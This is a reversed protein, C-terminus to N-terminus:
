EREEFCSFLVSRVIAAEWSCPEGMEASVEFKALVTMQHQAVFQRSLDPDCQPATLLERITAFADSALEYESQHAFIDFFPWVLDPLRLIQIALREFQMWDRLIAGCVLATSADRQGQVLRSAFSRMNSEVHQLFSGKERRLLQSLVEATMKRCAPPMVPLVALLSDTLSLAQFQHCIASAVDENEASPAERDRVLADRVEQLGSSLSSLLEDPVSEASNEQWAALASVHGHLKQAPSIQPLFTAM